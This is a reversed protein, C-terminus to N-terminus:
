IDLLFLLSSIQTERAPIVPNTDTETVGSVGREEDDGVDVVSEGFLGPLGSHKHPGWVPLLDAVCM